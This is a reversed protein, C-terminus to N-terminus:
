KWMFPPYGDLDGRIYRALLLAQTYPVIGWEVKEELFPHKITEQKRTQWASLVNKRTDGDMLVAGNEKEFFGSSTVMRKNILSLVFRDAFVPRLEEMLDLALSARGPRDTHMFGVYPDLGVTELAATCMNTLLTYVFSLLANVADLPPRRNRGQFSFDEKQQLILEDFVSFYLSAAEGEIGRLIEMSKCKQIAALSNKLQGSVKKLKEVDLRMGHDRTARELIWRANFIKGTIFNKAIDLSAEKEESLLYQRKRLLVNGREEGSIRALFRGSQSLFSLAVNRNACAGMLAPSAGTFGFTVIAELNHLPIRGVEQKDSLVVVNEGDLSLYREPSTIYLTNLLKKM